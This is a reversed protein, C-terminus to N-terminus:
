VGKNSLIFIYMYNLFFYMKGSKDADFKNFLAFVEKESFVCGFKDLAQNFQKFDIVGM